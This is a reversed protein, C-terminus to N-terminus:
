YKMTLPKLLKYSLVGGEAYIGPSPLRPLSFTPMQTETTDVDQFNKFLNQSFDVSHPNM